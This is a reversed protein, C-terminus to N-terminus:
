SELSVVRNIAGMELWEPAKRQEGSLTMESARVEGIKLPLLISAPPPFVGLKIEPVGLKADDAAFILNCALVVEFGGGLAAGKVKAMLPLPMALMREILLHFQPLMDDVAGPAHEEVSAGFSFHKGLGTLIIMKKQPDTPIEELASLLEKILAACIINAPPPGLEIQAVAGDFKESVQILQYSM